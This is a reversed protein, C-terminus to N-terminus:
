VRRSRRYAAPTVGRRQRMRRTLAAQDGHGCRLAIEAIPLLTTALLNEAADLRLDSLFAHPSRGLYQRFLAFLRTESIGAQRSIEAVDLTTAYQGRMLDIARHLAPPLATWQEQPTLTDLLLACWPRAFRALPADGTARNDIARHDIYALLAQQAPSLAFFPQHLFRDAAITDDGVALDLVVFQDGPGAQFAHSEGAPIVAAVAGAMAAMVAGTRGAIEMALRGRRPMVIQHFDHAHREVEAGYSKLSLSAM